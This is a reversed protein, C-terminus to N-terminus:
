KALQEYLTTSMLLSICEKRQQLTRRIRANLMEMKDWDGKCHKNIPKNFIHPTSRSQPTIEAQLIQTDSIRGTSETIM